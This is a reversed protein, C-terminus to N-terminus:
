REEERDILVGLEPDLRLTHGEIQKGGDASLVVLRLNRLLPSKQWGAPVEERLLSYLVRRDSITVSRRLLQEIQPLSPPKDLGYARGDLQPKGEVAGLIVLSVNPETLRTMAQLAPHLEPAEEERPSAAIQYLYETTGPPRLLRNGAERVDAQEASSMTRFTDDWARQLPGASLREGAGYVAEILEEVEDPGRVTGRDRLTLWTRLLIHPFYVVSSGSDFTPVGGKISEPETLWLEPKAIPRGPRSHRHLRGSRQLLLDIPALDSVMLDFDLDLSQEVIQTAVLVAREPRCVPQDGVTAEPKGFRRLVRAERDARDEWLFRAHLLDLEPAGDSAIEPFFPKLLRYVEQARQVTNCIVVATGGGTLKARLRPGLSFGDALLSPVPVIEFERRVGASTPIEVVLATGSAGVATIRPYRADPVDTLAGRETGQMYARALERRRADPLTASLLVVSAGLAALWQILIDLLQSMYTDYAHVEDIVVTKHALGFLRVFVHRTQLAALLIQDVTGVGFPALLGRKRYTFWEAAAISADERGSGEAGIGVPKFVRYGEQKLESFAASLAAHGHLLQVNLTEAPFRKELFATVRDFMQNSTAQTPLAVYFGRQGLRVAWRDALWLGAETKGEGMPAEIIVLGPEDLREELGIVAEQMANPPYRFMEEFNIPEARRPPQALWGFSQLARRALQRSTHIYDPDFTPAVDPSPAAFGFITQNSGIWDAVSIFGALWLATADDTRPRRDLPVDLLEALMTALEERASSWPKRGIADSSMNDIDADSPIVGHHGGIAVALTDATEYDMGWNALIGQLAKASVTGHPASGAVPTAPWGAGRLRDRAGPDKQQFEPSAKGADHIGALFATWCRADDIDLGLREAVARREHETLVSEWLAEAVMAVDILHYLLPHYGHQNPDESRSKAWLAMLDPGLREALNM